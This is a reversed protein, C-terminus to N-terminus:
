KSSDRGLLDLRAKKDKEEWLQLVQANHLPNVDMELVWQEIWDMEAPKTSSEPSTEKKKEIGQMKTEDQTFKAKSQRKRLRVMSQKIKLSKEGSKESTTENVNSAGAVPAALPPEPVIDKKEDKKEDKEEKTKEVYRQITFSEFREPPVVFILKVKKTPNACLWNAFVKRIAPLTDAKVPHSEASTVQYMEGRSPWLSDIAPFSPNNPLNYRDEIIDQLELFKNSPGSPIYHSQIGLNDKAFGIVNRKKKKNEALEHGTTLRRFRGTYGQKSVRAHFWPEFLIGFFTELNLDTNIHLLSQIKDQEVSFLAAFAKQMIYMSGWEYSCTRYNEGPILHILVGSTKTQDVDESTGVQTVVKVVSKANLSDKIPDVLTEDDTSYGEQLVYRAIGGFKEYRRVVSGPDNRDQNYVVTGVEWLEQLTWPPLYLKYPTSKRFQKVHAQDKYLNGPSSIVLIKCCPPDRPPEGDYILWADKSDLLNTCYEDSTFNQIQNVMYFRGRHYMCGKSGGQKNSWVITEPVNMGSTPHLLRWVFYRSFYSKGTGSTGSLIINVGIDVPNSAAQDLIMTAIDKYSERIFIRNSRYKFGGDDIWLMPNTHVNGDATTDRTPPLMLYEYDGLSFTQATWCLLLPCRRKQDVIEDSPVSFGNSTDIYNLSNGFQLIPTDTKLAPVTGFFAPPWGFLHSRDSDVPIPTSSPGSIIEITDDM